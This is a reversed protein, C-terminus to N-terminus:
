PKGKYLPHKKGKNHHNKKKVAKMKVKKHPKNHGPAYRKASKDGYIKKKHGPPITKKKHIKGKPYSKQKHVHGSRGNRDMGPINTSSSCAITFCSIMIVLFLSTFKNLMKKM